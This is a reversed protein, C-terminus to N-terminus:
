KSLGVRFLVGADNRGGRTAVGYLAGDSALGLAARVDRGERGDAAFAHVPTVQGSPGIQFVAGRGGAAGASTSGYLRGGAQVLGALPYEGAADGPYFNHITEVVGALSVRFISGRVGDNGEGNATVGYLWGEKAQVLGSPSPTGSLTGADFFELVEFVGAATWRYVSGGGVSGNNTTTGYLAGDSAAVLESSPGVGEAYQFGHLVTVQGTAPRFRFISGGNGGSGSPYPGGDASTGYFEGDLGRTLGSIPFRPGVGKARFSVQVTLEGAPSIRYITGGGYAGGSSTTGYFSGDDLKLLRGYPRSGGAAGDFVYLVSVAGGPAVRFATGFGMGGEVSVGYLAGDDGQVLQARAEDAEQVTFSHYATFGAAAASGPPGAISLVLAASAALRQFGIAVLNM